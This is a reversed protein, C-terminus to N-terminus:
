RPPLPPAEGARISERAHRRDLHPREQAGPPLPPSEALEFERAAGLDAPPVQAEDLRTPRPRAGLHDQPQGVVQLHRGALAVGEEHRATEGRSVVARSVGRAHQGGETGQEIRVRGVRGDEEVPVPVQHVGVVGDGRQEGATRRVQQLRRDVDDPQAQVGVPQRRADDVEPGPALVQQVLHGRAGVPGGIRPQGRQEGLAPLVGAAARCGRRGPGDDLEDEAHGVTRRQPQEAHDAGHERRVVGGDVLQM